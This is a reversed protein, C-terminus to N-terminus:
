ENLNVGNKVKNTKGLLLENAFNNTIHSMFIKYSINNLEMLTEKINIEEGIVEYSVITDM